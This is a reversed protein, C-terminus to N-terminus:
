VSCVCVCVCVSGKGKPRCYLHGMGTQVSYDFSVILIWVFCTWWVCVVLLGGILVDFPFCGYPCGDNM